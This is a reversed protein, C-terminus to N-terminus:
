ERRREAIYALAEALCDALPRSTDVLRWPTAPYHSEWLTRSPDWRIQAPADPPPTDWDLGQSRLRARGRLRRMREDPDELVCEVYGYVAGAAEAAATGAEVIFSFRCPSDLVVSRGQALLSGALRHLANYAVRGAMGWESGADLAATKVVDLDLVIAGTREGILRALTSKGSGMPGAMQLLFLRDAM